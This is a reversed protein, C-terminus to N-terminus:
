HLTQHNTNAALTRSPFQSPDRHQPVPVYLSLSLSLLWLLVLSLSLPTRDRSVGSSWPLATSEKNIKKQIVKRKPPPVLCYCNCSFSNLPLQSILCLLFCVHANIESPKHKSNCLTHTSSLHYKRWCCLWCWREWSSSLLNWSRYLRYWSSFTSESLREKMMMSPFWLVLDGLSRLWWPAVLRGSTWYNSTGRKSNIM